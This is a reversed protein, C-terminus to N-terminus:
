GALLVKDLLFTLLRLDCNSTVPPSRVGCVVGWSVEGGGGGGGLVSGGSDGGTTGLLVETVELGILFGATEGGEDPLADGVPTFLSVVVAPRFDGGPDLVPSLLDVGTLLLVVVVVAVGVLFFGTDFLGDGVVGMGLFTPPLLPLL